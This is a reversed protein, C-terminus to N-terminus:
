SVSMNRMYTEHSWTKRYMNASGGHLVLLSMKPSPKIAVTPPHESDQSKVRLGDFGYAYMCTFLVSFLPLHEVGDERRFM